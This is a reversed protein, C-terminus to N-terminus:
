GSLDGVQNNKNIVVGIRSSHLLEQNLLALRRYNLVQIVSKWLEEIKSSDDQPIACEARLSFMHSVLDRIRNLTGLHGSNLIGVSYKLRLSLTCLLEEMSCPSPPYDKMLREIVM